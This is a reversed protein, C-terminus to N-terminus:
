KSDRPSQLIRERETSIIEQVRGPSVGPNKAIEKLLEKVGSRALDKALFYAFGDQISLYHGANGTSAIVQGHAEFMLMAFIVNCIMLEAFTDASEGRGFEFLYSRGDRLSPNVAQDSLLGAILASQVEDYAFPNGGVYAYSNIGGLLGIPDSEGYRGIAPDYRRLGSNHLGAQGDFVQGPFRLNYAFFGAGAPNANAADTGFPPPSGPGYTRM